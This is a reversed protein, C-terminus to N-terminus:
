KIWEFLGDSVFGNEKFAKELINILYGYNPTEKFTLKRVYVLMEQIFSFSFSFSQINTLQEKMRVMENRNNTNFWELKGCLMFLIIYICSELDDRRSPEIGNHVNLSVFNMTGIVTSGLQREEIHIEDFKYRKCLGFDILYLINNNDLLFNDPKIDRHLLSKNHLTELRKILQIGLTLVTKLQLSGYVKTLKTLSCVLLNIVLYNIQNDTGYWKLRPFGSEKALYQYIKAETKLTNIINGNKREIKIAVFENTRINKAKFVSGFSGESIKTLLEYKNALIM